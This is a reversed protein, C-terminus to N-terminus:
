ENMRTNYSGILLLEQRVTYGPTVQLRITVSPVIYVPISQIISQNYNGCLGLICYNKSIKYLWSYKLRTTVLPYETSPYSARSIEDRLRRAAYLHYIILSNLVTIVFFPVFSYIVADVWPWVGAVLTKYGEVGQCDTM